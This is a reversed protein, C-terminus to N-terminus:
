VWFNKSKFTQKRPNEYLIKSINKDQMKLMNKKVFIVVQIILRTGPLFLNIMITLEGEYNIGEDKVQILM